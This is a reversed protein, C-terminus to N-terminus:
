YLSIVASQLLFTFSYHCTTVLSQLQCFAGGVQQQITKM